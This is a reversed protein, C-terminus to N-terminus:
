NASCGFFPIRRSSAYSINWEGETLPMWNTCSKSLLLTNMAPAHVFPRWDGPMRTPHITALLFFM